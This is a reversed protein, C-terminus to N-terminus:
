GKQHSGKRSTSLLEGVLELETEETAAPSVAGPADTADLTEVSSNAKDLPKVSFLASANNSSGDTDDDDDAFVDGEDVPLPSAAPESFETMVEHDVESSADHSSTAPALPTPALPEDATDEYSSNSTNSSGAANHDEMIVADSLLEEASAEHVQQRQLYDEADMDWRDFLSGVDAGNATPAADAFTAENVQATAYRRATLMPFTRNQAVRRWSSILTSRTVVRFM